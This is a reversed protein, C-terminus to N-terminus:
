LQIEEGIKARNQMSQMQPFHLVINSDPTKKLDKPNEEASDATM